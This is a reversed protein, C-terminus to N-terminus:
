EVTVAVGGVKKITAAGYGVGDVLVGTVNVKTAKPKGNVDSYAKFSGKFTGDKAKYTLKLGSPNEGEKAEDVTTTGKAYAVSGAKPLTWMAGGGVAVGDPLYPLARQGWRAAFADADIRFAAGGKLTGPKGVKVDDGLGVVVPAAASTAATLWVAFQLSVGKKSVVVPVCCWEEGVSLQGSASVKTGNALTGAVKVKGKNAISVSLTNYPPVRETADARWAVNVAGKWKALVAAAAAKDASDKSTFVDRAGDIEYAGYTGGMGDAGLVVTCAEGGELSVTTPGDSAIQAKGNDSAKLKTKKGDIGVVVASVAALGTKANPTGAKVQFTGAVDGRADILYGDYVSALAPAVGEAMEYLCPSIPADQSDGSYSNWDFNAEAAKELVPSSVDPTWLAFFTTNTTAVANDDAAENGDADCYWGEFVYGDRVPASPLAIREGHEVTQAAVSTGGNVNFSISYKNLLWKAHLLMDETVKTNDGVVKGNEDFWGEFTYGDRAESTPLLGLVAGQDLIMYDMLGIANAYQCLEEVAEMLIQAREICKRLYVAYDWTNKPDLADALSRTNYARWVAQNRIYTSLKGDWYYGYRSFTETIEAYNTIANELCEMVTNRASNLQGESMPKSVWLREVVRDIIEGENNRYAWVLKEIESLLAIIEDEDVKDKDTIGVFCKHQWIISSIRGCSGIFTEIAFADRLLKEARNCADVFLSSYIDVNQKNIFHTYLYSTNLARASLESCVQTYLPTNSETCKDFAENVACRCAVEKYDYWFGSTAAVSMVVIDVIQPMCEDDEYALRRKEQCIRILEENNGTFRGDELDVDRCSEEFRKCFSWVALCTGSMASVNKECGNLCSNTYVNGDSYFSFDFLTGDLFENLCVYRLDGRGNLATAIWSVGKDHGSRLEGDEVLWGGNKGAGGTVFSFGPFLDTTLPKGWAAYLTAPEADPDDSYGLLEKGLVVGDPYVPAGGPELAWGAFVCGNSTFANAALEWTPQTFYYTTPVGDAGNPDLVVRYAKEWKAYLQIPAAGDWIAAGTGDANSYQKGNGGPETFYGKFVHGDRVPAAITPFVEGYIAKASAAGTGGQLDFALTCEMNVPLWHAYLTHDDAAAVVAIGAGREDYYRVGEGGPKTFYGQFLWGTRSPVSIQPPVECYVADASLAGGQGGQRDFALKVPRGTWKAYLVADSQDIQWKALGTGTASYIQEGGGNPETWYGDFDYGTRTPPTISPLSADFTAFATRTGGSGSRRNFVIDTTRPKWHAYFTTPQTIKEGVKIESGGDADTWWGLFDYGTRKVNPLITLLNGAVVSVTAPKGGGNLDYTVGVATRTYARLSRVADNNAENAEEIRDDADVVVKIDHSGASLRLLEVAHDSSAGSALEGVTIDDAVLRSGDYVRAVSNATAALRGGNRVTFDLRVKEDVAVANASLSVASVYLDPLKKRYSVSVSYNQVYYYDTYPYDRYTYIPFSAGAVSGYRSIVYPDRYSDGTAAASVRLTADGELTVSDGLKLQRGDVFARFSARQCHHWRFGEDRLSLVAYQGDPVVISCSDSSAYVAVGAQVSGTYSTRDPSLAYIEARAGIAVAFAAALMTM